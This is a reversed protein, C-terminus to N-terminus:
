NSDPQSSRRRLISPYGASKLDDEVTRAYDMDKYPGVEVRYLTDAGREPVFAPFHKRELKELLKAANDARTMAAVQLVFGGSVLSPTSVAAAANV